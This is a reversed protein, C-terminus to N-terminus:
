QAPKFTRSAGLWATRGPRVSEWSRDYFTRLSVAVNQPFRGNSRYDRVHDSTTGLHWVHRIEPRESEVVGDGDRRGGKRMRGM